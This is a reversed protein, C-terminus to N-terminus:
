LYILYFYFESEDFWLTFNAIYPGPDVDIYHKFIM